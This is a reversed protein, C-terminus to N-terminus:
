QLTLHSFPLFFSYLFGLLRKPFMPAMTHITNSHRELRRTNLNLCWQLINLAQSSIRIMRLIYPANLFHKHNSLNLLTFSRHTIRSAKCSFDLCSLVHIYVRGMQHEKSRLVRCPLFGDGICGRMGSNYSLWSSFFLLNKNCNVM